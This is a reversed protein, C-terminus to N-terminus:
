SCSSRAFRDYESFDHQGGEECPEFAGRSTYASTSGGPSGVWRYGCKQCKWEKMTGKLLHHETFWKSIGFPM